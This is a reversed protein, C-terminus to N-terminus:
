GGPLAGAVVTRAVELAKQYQKLAETYDGIEQFQEGKRIAVAVRMQDSFRLVKGQPDITITKPKGFTEIVFESSTGSVDVRKEEPNGETEIRIDVPM